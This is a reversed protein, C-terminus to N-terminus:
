KEVPVVDLLVLDYPRRFHCLSKTDSRLVFFQPRTQWLTKSASRLLYGKMAIADKDLRVCLSDDSKLSM